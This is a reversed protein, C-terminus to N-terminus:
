AASDPGADHDAQRKLLWPLGISCFTGVYIHAGFFLAGVKVGEANWAILGSPMATVLTAAGVLRLVRVLTATPM